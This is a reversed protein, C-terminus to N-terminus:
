YCYSFSITCEGAILDKMEGFWYTYFGAKKWAKRLRRFTDKADPTHVLAYQMANIVAQKQQVDENSTITDKTESPIIGESLLLEALQVPRKLDGLLWKSYRRFAVAEPTHSSLEEM